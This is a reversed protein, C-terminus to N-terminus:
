QMAEREVPAIGRAGEPGEEDGDYNEDEVGVQTAEGEVSPQQHEREQRLFLKHVIGMTIPPMASDYAAAWDQRPWYSPVFDTPAQKATNVATISHGCPM